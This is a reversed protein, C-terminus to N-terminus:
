HMLLFNCFEEQENSMRLFETDNKKLKRLQGNETENHEIFPLNTKGM